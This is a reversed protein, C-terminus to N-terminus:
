DQHMEPLLSYAMMSSYYFSLLDANKFAKRSGHPKLRAGNEHLWNEFASFYHM